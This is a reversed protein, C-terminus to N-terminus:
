QLFAVTVIVTVVCKEAPERVDKYGDVFRDIFGSVKDNGIEKM